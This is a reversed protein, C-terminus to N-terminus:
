SQNPETGRVEAAFPPRAGLRGRTEDIAAMLELLAEEDYGSEGALWEAFLACLADAREEASGKPLVVSPQGDRTEVIMGTHAEVPKGM